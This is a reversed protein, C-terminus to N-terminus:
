RLTKSLVDVHDCCTVPNGDVSSSFCIPQSGTDRGLVAIIDQRNGDLTSCNGDSPAVFSIGLATRSAPTEWIGDDAAGCAPGAFPVPLSTTGVQSLYAPDMRSLDVPLPNGPDTVDTLTVSFSFTAGQSKPNITQPGASCVAQIDRKPQYRLTGDPRVLFSGLLSQSAPIGAFPNSQAKFWSVAAPASPLVSESNFPVNNGLSGPNLRDLTAQYSRPNGFEFTGANPNGAVPASLGAFNAGLFRIQNAAGIASGVLSPDGPGNTALYGDAGVGAIVALRLDSPLTGGYAGGIDSASFQTIDIPATAAMYGAAPGLNVIFERGHPQYAVFLVDSSSFSAAGAPGALDSLAAAALLAILIRRSRM